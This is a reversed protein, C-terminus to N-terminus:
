RNDKQLRENQEIIEQFIKKLEEDELVKEASAYFGDVQLQNSEQYIYAQLAMELKDIQKVFRAEATKGKEFEEWLGCWYNANPLKSLVQQMSAFELLFKEHQGIQDNPTIDGGYIEGIEHLLALKIIKNSDLQPLYEQAILWALIASAFSHDAVSECASSKLGAQLWGQRFLNKLSAIELYVQLVPQAFTTQLQENKRKM